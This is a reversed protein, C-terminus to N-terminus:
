VVHNLRQLPTAFESDNQTRLIQLLQNRTLVLESVMTMLDELVDVNVRLSQQTIPAATATGTATAPAANASPTAATAPKEAQAESATEQATEQPIEEEASAPASESANAEPADKGEYVATLRDILNQDNGEPESGTEGITELLFRVQDISEFILTVYEPKIELDGDRFRGLVNEAAHAVSELRPLGLFGCTGKVTHMLRFINGLLEANNPDQELKVLDSDIEALSESSETIFEAILDDM